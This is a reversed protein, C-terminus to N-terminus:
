KHPAPNINYFTPVLIMPSKRKLIAGLTEAMDLTKPTIGYPLEWDFFCLLSALIIEVSAMGFLMGPCIRKGAGFPIYEFNLGRYDISSKLFREPLFEEASTGWYNPDRGIAWVNVMVQTGIPITFGNIECTETCDRPILFPGPPHLRLTEKIIAKLYELEELSTEDINNNYAKNRFVVQRVEAQARKMVRPKRLMEVMAWEVVTLSPETGALIMELIIAKLNNITLDGHHKLNLLASFLCQPGEEEQQNSAGFDNIIKELLMDIKHHLKKLKLREGTIVQLWKQSPFIDSVITEETAKTFMQVLSLIAEQGNNHYKEGFISKSVNDCITHLVMDSLNVCCGVQTSLSKILNSVEKERLSQFSRSRVHKANLMETSSIKRLLKWFNGVPSFALGSYDYFLIHLSPRDLRGGFNIDNSQFVEKAMEASSVVITSIEGVQLHMLEDYKKSLERMRHHALQSHFGVLHHISGIIPLKWPGPPLKGGKKRGNINSRLSKSAIILVLLLLAPIISFFHLFDM